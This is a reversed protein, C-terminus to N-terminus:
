AVRIFLNEGNCNKTINCFRGSIGGRPDLEKYNKCNVCLLYKM